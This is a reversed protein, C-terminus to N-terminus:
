PQKIELREESTPVGVILTSSSGPGPQFFSLLQEPSSSSVIGPKAVSHGRARRYLWDFNSTTGTIASNYPKRIWLVVVTFNIGRFALEFVPRNVSTAKMRTPAHEAVAAWAALRM